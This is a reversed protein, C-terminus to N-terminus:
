RRASTTSTTSTCSTPGCRSWRTSSRRRSPRTTSRATPTASTLCGTPRNHVGILRVGDEVWEVIEYPQKSETPKVAAHFVTVEWGRRALEKAALRPVTTGGGSDNWGFATMLLRRPRGGADAASGAGPRPRAAAPLAGARERLKAALGPVPLLRQELADALRELAQREADTPDLVAWDLEPVLERLPYLDVAAELAGEVDALERARASEDSTNAGHRRIAM